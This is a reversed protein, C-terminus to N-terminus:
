KLKGKARGVENSSIATVSVQERGGARLTVSTASGELLKMLDRNYMDGPDDAQMAFVKYNGPPVNSLVFSGGAASPIFRQMDQRTAYADEPFATIFVPMGSEVNGPQVTGNIEGPDTGMTIHLATGAQASPILGNTVDVSGYLVSKVYLKGQQQVILSYAGPYLGELQFSGDSKMVGHASEQTTNSHLEIDIQPMPSPPAGDITVAGSVTFSPPVTVEVDDVDAGKVTVPAMGGPVRLCYTGSVLGSIDFRSNTLQSSRLAVGSMMAAMQDQDCPWALVGAGRSRLTAGTVRGRIHYTPLRRLKFDAGTWDAGPQLEQPAAQSLEAVGPYYVPMYGEEPINSHVNAGQAMRTGTGAAAMLYYRGSQLDFLRYQGRDDTQASSERWLSKGQNRYIYRMVSVSVGAMPQGDEDLVKGSIAALPPIRVEVDEVVQQAAVAVPKGASPMTTSYGDAVATAIYSGPPVGDFLFKGSPNSATVYSQGTLNRLTVVAKKVAQGTVANSVKGSVSGPQQAVLPILGLFLALLLNGVKM